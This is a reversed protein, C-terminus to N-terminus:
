CGWTGASKVATPPVGGLAEEGDGGDGEGQAQGGGVAGGGAPFLCMGTHLAGVLPPLGVKWATEVRPFGQGSALALHSGRSSLLEANVDGGFGVGGVSM